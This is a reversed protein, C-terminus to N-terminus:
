FYFQWIIWCNWKQTNAGLFCFYYSWYINTGWHEYCYKHFGLCPLSRFTRWHIFSYLFSILIYLCTMCVCWFIIWGYFLLFNQWKLFCPHVIWPHHAHQPTALLKNPNKWVMKHSVQIFMKALEIFYTLGFLYISFSKM